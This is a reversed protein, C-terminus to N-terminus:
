TVEVRDLGRRRRWEADSWVLMDAMQKWKTLSVWARVCVGECEGMEM